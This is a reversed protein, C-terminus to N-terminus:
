EFTVRPHLGDAASILAASPVAVADSAQPLVVIVELSPPIVLVLQERECVLVNVILSAQPLEAEADLVTVHVFSLATGDMVVPPVVVVNPHLGDAASMLAARPVAVAVSAQPLVVIVELSPLMVLLLQERECVLVNVALSAQPLVAVADLVIVHDASLAIGDIVVPPVAVVNPQLGDAASILAASPVAVAVSAHPLVVIVELSPLIIVVLQERECVLVKLTLSAQPLVAVAYLVIVHDASLAMGDIVVLPVVVVNPHLGDAASILAARPVADAVSAHPLVVMVELSPLIVLVLQERECVLVNVTLSAQPLVAVADLVIVHDTSLATGDIVVPPVVVVNPHLGDAASILPARPVADAVSAQPLVVMVELSPLTELM